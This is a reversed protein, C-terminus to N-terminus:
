GQRRFMCFRSFLGLSVTKAGCARREVPGPDASARFFGTHATPCCAAQACNKHVFNHALGRVPRWTSSRFCCVKWADNKLMSESIFKWRYCSRCSASRRLESHVSKTSLLTGLPPMHMSLAQHTLFCGRACTEQARQPRISSNGVSKTSLGRDSSSSAM